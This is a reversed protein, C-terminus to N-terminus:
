RTAVAPERVAARVQAPAPQPGRGAMIVGIGVAMVAAGAWIWWTLPNVFARLAADGDADFGTVV